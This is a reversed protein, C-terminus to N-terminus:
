INQTFNVSSKRLLLSSPPNKGTKIYFSTTIIIIQKKTLTCLNMKIEPWVFTTLSGLLPKLKCDVAANVSLLQTLRDKLLKFGSFMKEQWAIFTKKPM